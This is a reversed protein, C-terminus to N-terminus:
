KKRHFRNSAFSSLVNRGQKLKNLSNRYIKILPENFPKLLIILLLSNLFSYSIKLLRLSTELQFFRRHKESIDQYFTGNQNSQDLFNSKTLFYYFDVHYLEDYGTDEVYDWKFSFFLATKITYPTLCIVWCAWLSIFSTALLDKRDNHKLTKLTQATKWYLYGSVIVMPTYLLLPM